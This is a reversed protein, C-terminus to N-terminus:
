NKWVGIIGQNLSNVGGTLWQSRTNDRDIRNWTSVDYFNDYVTIETWNSGNPTSTTTWLRGKGARAGCVAWTSTTSDWTLGNQTASAFATVAYHTPSYGYGPRNSVSITQNSNLLVLNNSNDFFSGVNVSTNGKAVLGPNLHGTPPPWGFIGIYINSGTGAIVHTVDSYNRACTFAQQGPMAIGATNFDGAVDVGIRGDNSSSLLYGSTEVVDTVYSAPSWSTTDSRTWTAGGDTSSAVQNNVGWVKVVAPFYGWSYYIATCNGVWSCATTLNYTTWSLGGNTSKAVFGNNGCVWYQGGREVVDTIATTAPFAVVFPNYPGKKYALWMQNSTLPPM